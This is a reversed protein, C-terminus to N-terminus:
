TSLLAFPNTSRKSGPDAQEQSDSEGLKKKRKRKRKKSPQLDANAIANDERIYFAETLKAFLNPWEHEDHNDYDFLASIGPLTDLMALLRQMAPLDLIESKDNDATWAVRVVLLQKLMRLSYLMAEYQASLHLEQWTSRRWTTALNKIESVTPLRKGDQQLMELMSMLGIFRWRPIATSKSTTSSLNEIYRAWQAIQENVTCPELTVLNTTGVISGKRYHEDVQSGAPRSGLLMSYALRRIDAGLQWACARSPDEILVPLYMDLGGPANRSSHVLSAHVLESVRSDLPHLAELTQAQAATYITPHEYELRFRHFQDTNRLTSRKAKEVAAQLTLHEDASMFYAPELLGALGCSRAIASPRYILANAPLGNATATNELDNLMIVRIKTGTAQILMDSDNTFITIAAAGTSQRNSAESACFSDAEGPIMKTREAYKSQMLAEVVSFVLFPPAPLTPGSRPPAYVQRIDIARAHSGKASRSAEDHHAKVAMLQKVLADM